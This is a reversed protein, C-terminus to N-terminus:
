HCPYQGEARAELREILGRHIEAMIGLNRIQIQVSNIYNYWAKTGMLLVEKKCSSRPGRTDYTYDSNDEDAPFLIHHATISYLDDGDKFYFGMTGQIHPTKM